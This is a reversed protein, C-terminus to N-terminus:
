AGTAQSLAGQEVANMEQVRSPAAIADNTLTQSSSASGEISRQALARREELQRMRNERELAEVEALLIQEAEANPSDNPTPSRLTQARPQRTRTSSSPPPRSIPRQAAAATRKAAASTKRTSVM